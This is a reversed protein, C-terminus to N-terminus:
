VRSLKKMVGLKVLTSFIERLVAMRIRISEHGLDRQHLYWSFRKLVKRNVQRLSEIGDLRALGYFEGWVTTAIHESEDSRATALTQWLLLATTWEARMSDTGVWDLLEQHDADGAQAFAHAEGPANSDHQDRTSVEDKSTAAFPTSHHQATSSSQISHM